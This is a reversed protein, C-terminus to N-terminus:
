ANTIEELSLWNCTEGTYIDVDILDKIAGLWKEAVELTIRYTNMNTVGLTTDTQRGIIM